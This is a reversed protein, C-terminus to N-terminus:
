FGGIMPWFRKPHPPTSDILSKRTVFCSFTAVNNCRLLTTFNDFPRDKKITLGLLWQRLMMDRGFWGSGVVEYPSFVVGVDPNSELVEVKAALYNPSWRDDHELFAVFDGRAKAIGLRYTPVIGKNSRGEHAYLLIKDPFNQQFGEIVQLSHDTSGDDVVVVEFDQYSQDIVSQIAETLLDARNYSTIIVSVRPTSM